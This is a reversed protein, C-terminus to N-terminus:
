QDSNQIIIKDEDPLEEEEETDYGFDEEYQLFNSTSNKPGALNFPEEDYSLINTGVLSEIIKNQYTISNLVILAKTLASPYDNTRVEIKAYNYLIRIFYEKEEKTIIIYGKKDNYSLEKSFFTTNSQPPFYENETKQYYSVLDAYLYFKEQSSYLVNNSGDSEIIQMSRPLYIRYGELATNTKNNNEKLVTDIIEECDKNSINYANCGTMGLLIVVLIFFKNKM